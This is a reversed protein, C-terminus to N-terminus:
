GRMLAKRVHRAGLALSPAGNRFGGVSMAPFHHCSHPQFLSWGRGPGEAILCVAGTQSSLTRTAWGPVWLGRRSSLGGEGSSRSWLSPVPPGEVLHWLDGPDGLREM